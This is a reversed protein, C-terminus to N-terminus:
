RQAIGAVRVGSEVLNQLRVRHVHPAEEGRLGHAVLLELVEREDCMVGISRHIQRGVADM